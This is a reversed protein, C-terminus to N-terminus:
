IRKTKPEAVGVSMIAPLIKMKMKSLIKLAQSIVEVIVKAYTHVIRQM